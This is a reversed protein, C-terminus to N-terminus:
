GFLADRGFRAYEVDEESSLGSVGVAGIVQDKVLIPVAGGWTVYRLDGYNTMPFGEKAVRRGLEASEVGERASTFAKHQANNISPLPCGDTRLFALLEGHEDCVAVALGHGNHDARDRVAEVIRMADAHALVTKEHM